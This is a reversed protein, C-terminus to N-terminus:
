LKFALIPSVCKPSALITGGEFSQATVTTSNYDIVGMYSNGSNVEIENGDLDFVQIMDRETSKVWTIQQVYGGSVYYGTGGTWDVQMLYGDTYTTVDTELVFVNTYNLQEGTSSDIHASGSHQKYYTNTEENYTFTSYYSDSFTLNVKSCTSVDTKVGFNVEDVFDFINVDFGDDYDTRTGQSDLYDELLTGDIYATHESSYTLLREADRGFLSSSIQNGDFYDIGLSILTPTGLTENSGYCIYIADFGHAFIPYYYRCSRISCVKPVQTYDGYIAMMRTIGGEVEIEFMIDAAAIGYQPLAGSMNNIMIAVPRSGVAEDTLTNLGTLRNINTEEVVIPETTIETTTTIAMTTLIMTSTENTVVVEDEGGFAFFAGLAVVCAICAAAIAIIKKKEM